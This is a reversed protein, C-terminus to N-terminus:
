LSTCVQANGWGTEDPSGVATSDKARPHQAIDLIDPGADARASTFSLTSEGENASRGPREVQGQRQGLQGLSVGGAAHHEPLRERGAGEGGYAQGAYEAALASDRSAGAWGPERLTSFSHPPEVWNDGRGQHGNQLQPAPSQYSTTAQHSAPSERTFGRVDTEM